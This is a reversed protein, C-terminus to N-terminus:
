QSGCEREDKKGSGDHGEGRQRPTRRAKIEGLM